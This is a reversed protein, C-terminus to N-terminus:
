SYIWSSKAALELEKLFFKIKEHPWTLGGWRSRYGVHKLIPKLIRVPAAARHQAIYRQQFSIIKSLM